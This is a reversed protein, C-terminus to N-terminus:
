SSDSAHRDHKKSGNSSTTPSVPPQYIEPQFNESQFHSPNFPSNRFTTTQFPLPQFPAPQFEPLSLMSHRFNGLGPSSAPYPDFGIQLPDFLDHYGHNAAPTPMFLNEPIASIFSQVHQVPQVPQVPQMHLVPHLEPEEVKYLIDYHGPRYLLRIVPMDPPTIDSGDKSFRHFNVEATPSRDLYGVEVTFGAPLILCDCMAMLALHDIEVGFPDVHTAVYDLLPKETFPQYSDVRNKMWASTILRFHMVIANSFSEDNFYNVLATLDVKGAAMIKFLEFTVDTFDEYIYSAIGAMSLLGNLSAVRAHEMGIRNVDGLKLLQEFYGFAIATWGCNGDGRIKRYAAYKPLLAQTKRAFAPDANSYEIVLDKSSKLEGVVPGSVDPTYNQSLRQLEPDHYTLEGHLSIPPLGPDAPGATTVAVDYAAPPAQHQALQQQHESTVSTPDHQHQHELPAQHQPLISHHHQQQQQHHEDWVNVTPDM